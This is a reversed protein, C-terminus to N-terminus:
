HQAAKFDNSLHNKSKNPCCTVTQPKAARKQLM